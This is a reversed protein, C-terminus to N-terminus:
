IEIRGPMCYLEKSGCWKRIGLVWHAYQESGSTDGSDRYDKGCEKVLELLYSEGEKTLGITTVVLDIKTVVESPKTENKFVRVCSEFLRGGKSLLHEVNDTFDEISGCVVKM